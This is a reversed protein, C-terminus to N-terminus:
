KYKSYMKVKLKKSMKKVKLRTRKRVQKETMKPNQRHMEEHVITNILSSDKKPVDYLAKNKHKSKDIRITKKDFDTEGFGGRVKGVVRKWITADKTLM